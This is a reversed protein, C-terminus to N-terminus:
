FTNQKKKSSERVSKFLIFALSFYYLVHLLAYSCYFLVFSNNSFTQNLIFNQIVTYILHISFYSLFIMNLLQSMIGFAEDSKLQKILNSVVLICLLVNAIIQSYAVYNLVGNNRYTFLDYLLYIGSLGIFVWFLRNKLWYRNILYGVILLEGLRYIISLFLSDEMVSPIFFSSAQALLDFFCSFLLYFAVIKFINDHM